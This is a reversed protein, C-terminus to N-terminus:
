VRAKSGIEEYDLPAQHLVLPPDGQRAGGQLKNWAIILFFM